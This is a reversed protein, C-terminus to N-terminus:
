RDPAAVAFSGDKSEICKAAVSSVFNDTRVFLEYMTGWLPNSPDVQEINLGCGAAADAHIARGHTKTASPDLFMKMRKCIDKDSAGAMMGTQLAQVAIDESLDILSKFQKIERADYHSLQQLFPELRGTAAVASAFLEDYGEVLNPLSFAMSSDAPSWQPDIPGLEASRGMAIKSAGLCVITGASKAKGPVYAHYEGTGSYNRCLSIIREAALGNGGPTSIVLALGTSLDLDQLVGELMNADHDDIMVNYVFSTFYSVVPRGLLEELEDFLRKRTEHGQQQEAMVQKYVVNQHNKTV